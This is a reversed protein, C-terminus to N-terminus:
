LQPKFPYQICTFCSLLSGLLPIDAELNCKITQSETFVWLCTRLTLLFYPNNLLETMLSPHVPLSKSPLHPGILTMPLCKSLPSPLIVVPGQWQLQHDPNSIFLPVGFTTMGYSLCILWQSRVLAARTCTWALGCPPKHHASHYHSLTKELFYAKGQWYWEM